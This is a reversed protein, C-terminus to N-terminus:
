LRDRVPFAQRPLEGNMALRLDMTLRTRTAAYKQFLLFSSSSITSDQFQNPFMQRFQKRFMLSSHFRMPCLNSSNGSNGILMKWHETRFNSSSRSKPALFHLNKESRAAPHTSIRPSSPHNPGTQILHQKWIQRPIIPYM